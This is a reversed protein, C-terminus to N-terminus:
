RRVLGLASATRKAQAEIEHITARVQKEELAMRLEGQHILPRVVRKWDAVKM